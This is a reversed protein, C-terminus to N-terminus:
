SPNLARELAIRLKAQDAPLGGGQAFDPSGGGKAATGTGASLQALAARLIVAADERRDRSRAVCIMAREGAGGLVALVGPGACLRKALGRLATIDRNDWAGIITKGGTADAAAADLLERAEYEALTKQAAELAKANVRTEERLRAVALPVDGRAVAFEDALVSIDRLMRRYEDLARGGCRFNVRTEGGRKELRGLKILGIQGTSRVHTGGCASWDYDAIEVIRISGSLKPAKRLPIAALQAANVEYVRLARDEYIVANAAREVADAREASIAAAPLDLTCETAGIHVAITDLGCVRVFAQSLLHQGSHQQMHDFRRPWDIEGNAPDDGLWERELVHVIDGDAREVVDIVRVGNLTGADNPQGGASPYFATQDLVVAPSDNHRARELVHASFHTAFSDARFLRVTM